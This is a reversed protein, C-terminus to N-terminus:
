WVPVNPAPYKLEPISHCAVKCGTPTNIHNFRVFYRCAVAYGEYYISYIMFYCYIDYISDDTHITRANSSVYCPM